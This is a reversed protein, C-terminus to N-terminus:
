DAKKAKALQRVAELTAEGGPLVASNGCNDVMFRDDPQRDVFLLYKAGVLMPFRGSTNETFVRITEPVTGRFVEQVKVTYFDGEYYGKTEGVHRTATVTGILVADSREFEVPLRTDLLCLALASSPILALASVAVARVERLTM